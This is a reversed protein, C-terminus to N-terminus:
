GKVLAQSMGAAAYAHRYDVTSDIGPMRVDAPDGAADRDALLWVLVCIDIQKPVAGGDNGRDLLLRWVGFIEGDADKDVREAGTDIKQHLRDLPADFFANVHDIQTEARRIERM